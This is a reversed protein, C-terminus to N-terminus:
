NKKMQKGKEGEMLEKVLKEVHERKVDNCIEMGIGWENCAYYCNTPQDFSCPWCLMPVGACLSEITSNWGSHTLFGGVSSHELVQEQPCWSAILGREKTENVFEPPLISSAGVVLDPRIVWFFPLKSNAIGWGFEVLQEPSIFALSGFNVYLVSNPANSDLWKLCDSEEKRLSYGMIKLPHEPIQNLLLPLPGIAYVLPFMSSLADLVDQELADFSHLVVASGKDFRGIAELCNTWSKENPNTTRLNHPLDRLRIGKMGPIWDIVKDLFGNTLCSEDKLPVLGKEVLAPFQIYGM